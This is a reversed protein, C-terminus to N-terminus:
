DYRCYMGVRIRDQQITLMGKDGDGRCWKGWINMAVDVSELHSMKSLKLVSWDLWASADEVDATSVLEVEMSIERVQNEGPLTELTRSVYTWYSNDMTYVHTHFRITTLNGCNELNFVDPIEGFFIKEQLTLREISPKLLVTAATRSELACDSGVILTLNTLVPFHLLVLPSVLYRVFCPALVISLRELAPMNLPDTGHCADDHWFSSLSVEKLHSGRFISALQKCSDIVFGSTNFSTLQPSHIVLALADQLTRSAQSWRFVHTYQMPAYRYGNSAFSFQTLYPALLRLVDPLCEDQRIWTDDVNHRPNPPLPDLVSLNRVLKAVAASSHLVDYFRTCDSASSIQVSHFLYARCCSRFVHSTTGCAILTPKDDAAFGVVVEKLEQPLSNM